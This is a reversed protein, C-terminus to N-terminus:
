VGSRRLAAEDSRRRNWGRWGRHSSRKETYERGRQRRGVCFEGVWCLSAIAMFAVAIWTLTLYKGGKYAYLGIDNGYKNILNTAKKMIVTVIVSSILLATFSLSALGFNGFSILRSGSLFFALLATLIALGAAAIGICYLVFTANIATTLKNLGDQIDDPFDIDSLNIHLGGAELQQNLHKEIDFHVPEHTLRLNASRSPFSVCQLKTPAPASM